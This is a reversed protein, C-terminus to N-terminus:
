YPRCGHQARPSAPCLRCSASRPTRASAALLQCWLLPHRWLLTAGVTAVLALSYSMHITQRM